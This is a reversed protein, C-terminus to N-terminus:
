PQLPPLAEELDELLEAERPRQQGQERTCEAKIIQVLAELPIALSEECGQKPSVRSVGRLMPWAVDDSTGAM